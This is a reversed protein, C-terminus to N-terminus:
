RPVATTSGHVHTTAKRKAEGANGTDGCCLETPRKKGEIGQAEVAASREHGERWACQATETRRQQEAQHGFCGHQRTWTPWRQSRVECDVVTRTAGVQRPLEGRAQAPQRSRAPNRLSTRITCCAPRIGIHTRLAIPGILGM